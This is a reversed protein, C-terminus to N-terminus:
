HDLRGQDQGFMLMLLVDSVPALLIVLSLHRSSVMAKMKVNVRMIIALKDSRIRGEKGLVLDTWNDWDSVWCCRGSTSEPM